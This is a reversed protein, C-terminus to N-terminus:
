DIQDAQCRQVALNGDAQQAVPLRDLHPDTQGVARRDRGLSRERQPSLIAQVARYPAGGWRSIITRGPPRRDDERRAVITPAASFCDCSGGLHRPLRSTCSANSASRGRAFWAPM